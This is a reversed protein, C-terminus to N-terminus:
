PHLDNGSLALQIGLAKASLYNDADCLTRLFLILIHDSNYTTCIVTLNIFSVLHAHGCYERDVAQWLIERDATVM